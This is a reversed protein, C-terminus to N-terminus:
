EHKIYSSHFLNKTEELILTSSAKMPYITTIFGEANYYFSYQIFAGDKYLIYKEQNSTSSHSYIVVGITHLKNQLDIYLERLYDLEFSSPMQGEYTEDSLNTKELLGIILQTFSSHPQAVQKTFEGKGNYHFAIKGKQRSADAFLYLEHYQNHMIQTIVIGHPKLKSTITVWFNKLQPRDNPFNYKAAELELEPTVQGIRTHPSHVFGPDIVNSNESWNCLYFISIHPPNILYAHSEVRTIATYCWSFYSRNTKGHDNEFDIYASKWSYGQAKHCTIAYGYKVLAITMYEDYNLDTIIKDTQKERKRLNSWAYLGRKEDKSLTNSESTLFNEIIRTKVIVALRAFNIEVERFTLTVDKGKLKKLVIEPIPNVYIISGFEGSYISHQLGNKFTIFRNYTIIRDGVEIAQKFGLAERVSNNAAVVQKNSYNIFIVNSKDTLGKYHHKFDEIKVQSVINSDTSLELNNYIDAEISKYIKLANSIIINRKYPIIEELTYTKTEVRYTEELHKQALASEKENGRLLQTSDGIFIIKRKQNQPLDIFMMLDNLLKGSGFILLENDVYLDSLLHAEDIIYFTNDPDNNSKINYSQKEIKDEQDSEQGAMEETIVNEKRESFDYLLSYISSISDIKNKNRIAEALRSGITLVRPFRHQKLIEEVILHILYTKGTHTPGTLIFAHTTEDKIFEKFNSLAEKQSNTFSIHQSPDFGTATTLDYLFSSMNSYRKDPDFDMAKLVIDNISQSIMSNIERPERLKKSARLTASLPIQGTLCYYLTAGLAYVDVFFGKAGNKDYQEPPAFGDTLIVTHETDVNVIDRAAGFDILIAFSNDKILINNPKVDRHIINKQHVVQLAESVQKIYHISDAESLNGRLKILDQLTVSDVYEMVYYATNNETFFDQISVINPHKSEAIKQAEKLFESRYKTYLPEYKPASVQVENGVRRCFKSLFCEKIAVLTKLSPFTALYTIGFGGQGKVAIIIYKGNCLTSDTVLTDSYM